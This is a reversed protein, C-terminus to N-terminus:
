LVFSKLRPDEPSPIPCPWICLTSAKRLIYLHPTLILLRCVRNFNNTSWKSRESVLLWGIHVVVRLGDHPSKALRGWRIMM